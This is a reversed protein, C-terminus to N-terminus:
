LVATQYLPPSMSQRLRWEESDHALVPDKLRPHGRESEWEDLDPAHTLMTKLMLSVAGLKSGVEFGSMVLGPNQIYRRATIEFDEAPWGCVQEVHDTPAGVAFIGGRVEEAYHRIQAIEFNSLGLVKAAKIFMRTPVNRYRVKRGVIRAFIEAVDYGSLLRRGTPRYHKGIHTVPRALVGATVAAIDENSPPANLGDGYPLM